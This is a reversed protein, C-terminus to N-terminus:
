RFVWRVRDTSSRSVQQTDKVVESPLLGRIRLPLHLPLRLRPYQNHLRGQNDLGISGALMVQLVKEALPPFDRGDRGVITGAVVIEQDNEFLILRVRSHEFRALTRNQRITLFWYPM